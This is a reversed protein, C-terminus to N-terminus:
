VVCSVLCFGSNFRNNRTLNKAPDFGHFKSTIVRFLVTATGAAGAFSGVKKGKLDAISRIPSAAPVIVDVTVGRGVPFIM